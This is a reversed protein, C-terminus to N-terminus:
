FQFHDLTPALSNSKSMSLHLKLKMTGSVECTIRLLNSLRQPKWRRTKLIPINFGIDCPQSFSPMACLASSLVRIYCIVAEQGLKYITRPNSPVLTCAPLLVSSNVENQEEAM